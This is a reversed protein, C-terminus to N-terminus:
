LHMQIKDTKGSIDKKEIEPALWSLVNFETM